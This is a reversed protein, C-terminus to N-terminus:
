ILNAIQMIAAILNLVAAIAFISAYLIGNDRRKRWNVIMLIMLLSQLLPIFGPIMQDSILYIISAAIIIVALVVVLISLVIDKKNKM